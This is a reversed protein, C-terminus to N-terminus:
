ISKEVINSEMFFINYVAFLYRILHIRGITQSIVSLFKIATQFNKLWDFEKVLNENNKIKEVFRDADDRIKIITNQLQKDNNM